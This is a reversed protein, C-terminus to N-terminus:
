NFSLRASNKKKVQAVMEGVFREIIAIAGQPNKKYIPAFNKAVYKDFLDLVEKQGTLGEWAETLNTRAKDRVHLADIPKLTFLDDIADM